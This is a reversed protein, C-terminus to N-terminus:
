LPIKLSINSSSPVIGSGGDIGITIVDKKTYDVAQPANELEEARKIQARLLAEFHACSEAIYKEDM